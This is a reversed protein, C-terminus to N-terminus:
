PTPTAGYTAVIYPKLAARIPEHLAQVKEYPLQGTAASLCPIGENDFGFARKDRANKGTGPMPPVLAGARDWWDPGLPACRLDITLLPAGAQAIACGGEISTVTPKKVKALVKPTLLAACDPAPLPLAAAPAPAADVAVAADVVPATNSGASSGSPEASSGASSGASPANSGTASGVATGSGKAPDSETKKGGCASLVACVVLPLTKSMTM